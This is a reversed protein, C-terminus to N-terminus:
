DVPLRQRRRIHALTGAAEDIMGPAKRCLVQGRAVFAGERAPTSAVVGATEARAVVARAAETRGRMVVAYPKVQEATLVAQVLPDSQKIAAANRTETAHAERDGAGFIGRVVFYFVAVVM